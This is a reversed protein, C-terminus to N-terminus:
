IEDQPVTLGAFKCLNGTAAYRDNSINEKYINIKFLYCNFM